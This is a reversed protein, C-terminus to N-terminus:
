LYKAQNSLREAIRLGDYLSIGGRDPFERAHSLAEIEIEKIQFWALDDLESYIVM